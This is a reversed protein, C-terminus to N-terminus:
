NLVTGKCNARFTNTGLEMIAQLGNSIHETGNGGNYFHNDELEKEDVNQINNCQCSKKVPCFGAALYILM